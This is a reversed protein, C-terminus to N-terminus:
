VAVAKAVVAKVGESIRPHTAVEGVPIWLLARADDAAQLPTSSDFGTLMYTNWMFRRTRVYRVGLSRHTREAKITEVRSDVLRMAAPDVQAGTEELVERAVEAELPLDLDQVMGGPITLVDPHLKAFEAREQFLIEGRENFLLLDAVVSLADRGAYKDTFKADAKAVTRGAQRYLAVNEVPTNQLQRYNWTSLDAADFPIAHFHMHESVTSQAESGDKFVLQMGRIGHVDRILKKAIYSFKRVVEWELETLDKPSRVHRRPIIMMHGDIYAFLSITLAVGHEEMIVYKDRLDCFVCKGTNQWIGDYQQTFRADRYAIQKAHESSNPESNSPKTM